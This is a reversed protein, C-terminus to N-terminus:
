KNNLLLNKIKFKNIINNIKYFLIYNQWFYKKNQIVICINDKIIDFNKIFIDYKINKNIYLEYIQQLHIINNDIIYIYNFIKQIIKLNDNYTTSMIVCINKNKKLIDIINTTLLINYKIDDFILLIKKNKYKNNDNIDIIIQKTVKLIQNNDYVIEDIFNYYDINFKNTFVICKDIKKMIFFKYSLDKILKLKKSSNGVLLYNNM